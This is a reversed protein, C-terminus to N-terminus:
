EVEDDKGDRLPITGVYVRGDACAVAIGGDTREELRDDPRAHGYRERECGPDVIPVVWVRMMGVCGSRV